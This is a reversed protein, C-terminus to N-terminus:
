LRCSRSQFVSARRSTSICAAAPQSRDQKQKESLTLRIQQVVPDNEGYLSQFKACLRELNQLHRQM